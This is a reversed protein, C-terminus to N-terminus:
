LEERTDIVILILLESQRTLHHVVNLVVQRMEFGKFNTPLECHENGLALGRALGQALLEDEASATWTQLVDLDIEKIKSDISRRVVFWVVCLCHTQIKFGIACVSVGGVVVLIQYIRISLMM